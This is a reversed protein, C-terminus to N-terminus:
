RRQMNARRYAIAFGARQINHFSPGAEGPAPIGTETTLVGAGAERAAEIRAALLATQAGQGRHEALTAGLGRRRL